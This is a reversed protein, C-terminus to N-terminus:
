IKSITNALENIDNTQRPFHRQLAEGAAHVGALVGAVLNGSAFFPTMAAIAADWSAPGIKEHIGTDGIIAFSRNRWAVFILVGNRAATRAMGLRNFAGIADRCPDAGCGRQVHVRIEGSTTQEAQSIAEVIRGCEARSFPSRSLFHFAAAM